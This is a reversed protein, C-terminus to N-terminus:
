PFQFHLQLPEALPQAPEAGGSSEAFDTKASPCLFEDEGPGEPAVLERNQLRIKKRKVRERDRACTLCERKGNKPRVHTNKEDYPHGKPCHTRLAQILGVNGRRSNEAHTVPELHQPNACCRVRCKHDLELGELVKGHILEYSFKHALVVRGHRKSFRGYGRKDKYAIWIWCNDTKNVKPWFRDEPPIAKSHLVEKHLHGCSKTVGERISQAKISKIKGCDCKCLYYGKRKSDERLVILQNFKKGTLNIKAPM